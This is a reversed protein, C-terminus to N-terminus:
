DKSELTAVAELAWVSSLSAEQSELEDQKANERQEQHEWASQCELVNGVEM